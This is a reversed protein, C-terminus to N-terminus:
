LQMRTIRLYVLIFFVCNNCRTPSIESSYVLHLAFYNVYAEYYLYFIKPRNSHPALRHEENYEYICPTESICQV